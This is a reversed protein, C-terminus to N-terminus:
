RDFYAKTFTKRDAILLKVVVDKVVKAEVPAKKSTLIPVSAKMSGRVVLGFSGHGVVVEDYTDGPLTLM